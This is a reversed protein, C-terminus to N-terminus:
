MESILILNDILDRFDKNTYIVAKDDTLTTGENISRSDQKICNLDYLKRVAIATAAKMASTIGFGASPMIDSYVTIDMGSLTYGGSTFGYLVSKIPNAWKDEKKYKISSLNSKKRDDLQHFYIKVVGDDRKSVGVHVLLNIAMSITKDKYFWSHEGAFHIRGPAKAVVEPLVEYELKHADNLAKM